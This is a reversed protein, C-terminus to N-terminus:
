LRATLRLWYNRGSYDYMSALTHNGDPVWPPVADLVNNIGISVAARRLGARAADFGYTYSLDWSRYPEIRPKAATGANPV